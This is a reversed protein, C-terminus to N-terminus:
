TAPGRQKRVANVFALANVFVASAGNVFVGHKHVAKEFVTHKRVCCLRGNVFMSHKRVANVFVNM